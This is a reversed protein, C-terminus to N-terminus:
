LGFLGDIVEERGLLVCNLLLRGQGAALSLEVADIGSNKWIPFEIVVENEAAKRQQHIM